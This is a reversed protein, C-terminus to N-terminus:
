QTFRYTKITAVTRAEIAGAKAAVNNTKIDLEEINIIRKMRALQDLFSVTQTFTGEIECRIEVSRYFSAEGNGEGGPRFTKVRVGTNQALLTMKRLVGSLDFTPPMYELASELQVNLQALEQKIKEINEAFDQLKRLEAKKVSIQGELNREDQRMQVMDTTKFTYFQNGAIGLGVLMIILSIQYKPKM